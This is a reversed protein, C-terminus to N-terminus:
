RQRVHETAIVTGNHHHVVFAEGPELEVPDVGVAEFIAPLTPRHSCIAVPKKKTLLPQVAKRVHSAKVGEQLRDDLDPTIGALDTFPQITAVCRAAPSSVMKEVGFAGITRALRKATNAGAVTLPRADEEGHWRGRTYTKAHRLIVLTQTDHEDRKRLERFTELLERDHTYSLMKAAVKPRVWVVDDIEKNPKFPKPGDGVVSASWYQVIKIGANVVYEAAPMPIGLRIRVATEELVERYACAAAKEGRNAKGKPFTWDDYSPRHVILVEVGGAPAGKRPRWVVAGSAAVTKGM